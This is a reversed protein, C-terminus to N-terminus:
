TFSDLNNAIRVILYLLDYFREFQVIIAEANFPEKIIIMIMCIFVYNM